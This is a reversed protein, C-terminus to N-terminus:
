RPTLLCARNLSASGIPCTTRVEDEEKAWSGKSAGASTDDMKPKRGGQVSQAMSKLLEEAKIDAQMHM